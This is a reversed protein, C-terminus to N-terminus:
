KKNKEGKTMVHISVGSDDCPDAMRCANSLVPEHSAVHLDDCDQSPSCTESPSAVPGIASANSSEPFWATAAPSCPESPSTAPMIASTDCNAPLCTVTVPDSDTRPKHRQRPPKRHKVVPQRCFITPVANPKLKKKGLERLILPEFQDETFHIECLVSNRTPVFDKRGINLLWQKRRLGDRKGTPIMFVACGDEPKNSCNYACCCPM